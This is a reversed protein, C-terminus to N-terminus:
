IASTQKKIDSTKETKLANVWTDSNFNPLKEEFVVTPVGGVLTARFLALLFHIDCKRQECSIHKVSICLLFTLKLSNNQTLGVEM